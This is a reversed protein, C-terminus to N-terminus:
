SSLKELVFSKRRSKRRERNWGIKRKRETREKERGNSDRFDKLVRALRAYEMERSRKDREKRPFSETSM